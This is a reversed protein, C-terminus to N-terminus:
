IRFGKQMRFRVRFGFAVRFGLGWFGFCGLGEFEKKCFRLGRFM